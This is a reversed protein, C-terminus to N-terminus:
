AERNAAAIIRLAGQGALSYFGATLGALGVDVDGSVTAVAIPPASDFFVFEAALGEAAFSGKEQAVFMPGGTGIKILGIKLREASAGTGAASFLAVGAITGVVLHKVRELMRERRRGVAATGASARSAAVDAPEAQHTWNM